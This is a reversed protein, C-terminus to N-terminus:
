SAELPEVELFLGDVGVVEVEDGISLGAERHAAAQWRAGDLEVHGNPHFETVAVGTRGILHDRGITPTSFRSRAVTRMAVVYFAVISMVIVLVIWWSAEIQPPAHSLRLGGLYLLAAGLVTLPGAGGRQFDVTMLWLGGLILAVAWWTLPLAALGYGALLLSVAAAGAAVGPGIAYFEFAAVTLGVVLFFFAAEVGIATRLTRTWLGPESFTTRVAATGDEMAQLTELLVPAGDVEVTRGDLEVLLNSISPAVIHVLGDIPGTVTVATESLDVLSDPSTQPAGDGAVLPVSHGIEVGPAAAGIPAAALLHAAGGFAVAPDPGVWVVVPLPPASVLDILEAIKGSLTASSDVQIIAAASGSDGAVEIRGIVFGIASPDLNGTIEIVDVRGEQEQGWGPLAIAMLLAVAGIFLSLLRRTM